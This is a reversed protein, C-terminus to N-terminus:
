TDPYVQPSIKEDDVILSRTSRDYGKILVHSIQALKDERMLVFQAVSLVKGFKDCHDLIPDMHTLIAWRSQVTDNDDMMVAKDAVM